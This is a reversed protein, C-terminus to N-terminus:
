ESQAAGITALMKPGVVEIAAYLRGVLKVLDEEALSFEDFVFRVSEGEPLNAQVGGLDGVIAGEVGERAIVTLGQFPDFAYSASLAAKKIADLIPDLVQSGTVILVVDQDSEGIGFFQLVANDSISRCPIITGGRAGARKAADVLLEGSNRGVLAYIMKNEM